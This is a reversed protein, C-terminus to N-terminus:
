TTIALTIILQNTAKLTKFVEFLNTKKINSKVYLNVSGKKLFILPKRGFRPAISIDGTM